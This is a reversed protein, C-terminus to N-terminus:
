CKKAFEKAEAFDLKRTRGERELYEKDSLVENYSYDAGVKSVLGHRKALNLIKRVAYDYPKTATKCFEFDSVDGNARLAFSEHNLDNLADGNLYIGQYSIVPAGYGQPGRLVIGKKKCDAVIERARVVFEMPFGSNGTTAWYRTFGM